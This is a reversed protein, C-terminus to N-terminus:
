GVLSNLKKVSVTSKLKFFTILLALGISSECAALTLIFLSLIQGFTDNKLIISGLIFLITVSLISLELSIFFLIINNRRKFLGILGIFNLFLAWLIFISSFNYIPFTNNLTLIIELIYHHLLM